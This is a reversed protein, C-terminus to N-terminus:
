TASAPSTVIGSPDSWAVIETAASSSSNISDASDTTTVTVSSGIYETPEGALAETVMALSSRGGSRVTEVTEAGAATAAPLAIVTESM